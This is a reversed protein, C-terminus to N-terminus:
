SYKAAGGSIGLPRYRYGSPRYQYGEPNGGMFFTSRSL